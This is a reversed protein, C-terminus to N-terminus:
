MYGFLYVSVNIIFIFLRVFMHTYLDGGGGGPGRCGPGWAAGAGLPGACGSCVWAFWLSPPRHLIIGALAEECRM